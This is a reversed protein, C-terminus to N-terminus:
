ICFNNLLEIELICFFRRGGNPKKGMEGRGDEKKKGAKKYRYLSKGEKDKFLVSKDDLNMQFQTVILKGFCSMRIYVSIKGILNGQTDNVDFVDKLTKATPSSGDSLEVSGIM